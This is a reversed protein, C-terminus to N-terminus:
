SRGRPRKAPDGRRKTQGSQGRRRGKVSLPGADQNYDEFFVREDIKVSGDDDLRAIQSFTRRPTPKDHPGGLILKEGLLTWMLRLGLKDLRELLDDADAVLAAHGGETLSPDRFVTRGNILHYGDRGDWWLDRLTFVASAPVIMHFNQPLSADYEWEIALQNWSPSYSAPWDKGRGGGGHWEEPETNFSTAWPYEGAFGYPWTAGEPMWRGFFNRRHLCDYAIDIEKKPILYSGLHIWVHRYPDNFDADEEQRGWSPYSVLLRWRQGDREVVSLLRELVPLDEQMTVWEADPLQESSQLDASSGIWWTETDRGSSIMALPLTPDLKREELLILPTRQPEPTWRSRGRQVHDYLRSALQYMAVWQYKKGIREAWTPKGRGGGYKGRMYSDYSECRSGEYGFDRVVRQLIWKGMNEKPFTHTWSSLCNMSYKFFDSLFENPEFHLLRGWAKIQDDSPLELPWESAIPQMTLEPDCDDPLVNLERALETICRIHDRILANDFAAPDNLFTAHLTNTVTRAVDADRSVILAGYCSLLVRERVEDDDSDLLRQLVNPIAKPRATLVATVARTARDKVRRDAAATFWLLITAWREAISVELQDLLLEFAADILRRVPGRSEYRDHLFRCWVADRRALLNQKLLGDLWIADIASPQWSVSLAADMADWSFDEIELAEYILARSAATFTNPDRLPFSRIAIELVATRINGDELLNPIETGPIQEPILISLASIVGNNQGIAKRDTLLSNLSGGPRCAADLQTPVVKAWLEEAILFDGLREFAPRVISEDGLPDSTGPVDEILLDARVLWELVPLTNAQPRTEFIVQRARSWSLASDGSDAIARAIARLSGSVINAGGSTEHEVAFQKEKEDLFERIVPALGIWGAPLHNLGRARLTECVLRLYLPNSLEPQLIPAIPPELGYHQFFAKCAEREVGAFGAHEIVPLPYGEPLCYPVFSTRCTVCLRLYPRRQVAQSVAALRERWYRLPRTENIADICLILLSGSAEGAANLVNLLGNMGLTIPLGLTELMRTWPDPEGRFAHGFIVCTLLGESFRHHAVDCVGHTKGSGAAGTLVFTREFALSCVPSQLWDRLERSATIIDRVNDLNAAPFSVMYEAMFQRFGPSDARGSGHQAELSGALRSELSALRELLDELQTICERYARPDYTTTLSTCKDLLVPIEAVVSRADERLDNPWEPSMAASSTRRVASTIHSHAKRCLRVKKELECSWAATRGFATFWEWLDTQVNLEPTYRPGATVRALDLHASFWETSLVTHNFFFERIGGATDYDLLLSRLKSESWAEITLQRGEAAAKDTHEKQWDDFKEQGSRGPRATPGTLDFPFCVIYRTLAKHVHLATILSKTAQNILSDIDFVYKAQWGTRSGDPLNAFYEVGGDGGAGRLRTYAVEQPLTRSALQCCLEEFAEHQGGCRPAIQRFNFDDM